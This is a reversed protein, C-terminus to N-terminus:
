TIAVVRNGMSIAPLLLSVFSLLPQEDPCVIGM